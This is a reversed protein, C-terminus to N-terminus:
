PAKGTTIALMIRDLRETNDRHMERNHNISDSISQQMTLFRQDMTEKDAKKDLTDFLRKFFFGGVIGGASLILNWVTHPTPTYDDLM